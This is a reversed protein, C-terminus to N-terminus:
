SLFGIKFQEGYEELIEPRHLEEFFETADTGAFNLLMRKGGPHEDLFCTVDYVFGHIIIWIDDETDHLSVGEITYGKM